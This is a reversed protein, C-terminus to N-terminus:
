MEDLAKDLKKDYLYSRIMLIIIVILIIGGVIISPIIFKNKEKVVKTVLKKVNITYLRVDGNPAVVEIQIKNRNNKINNAGKIKYEANDDELLVDIDLSNVDDSIEIDYNEKEKDFNLMYDKIYLSKIYNNDSKEEEEVLIEGLEPKFDKYEMTVEKIAINTKKITITKALDNTSKIINLDEELYKDKKVSTDILGITIDKIKIDINKEDNTKVFFTIEELYNNCYLMNNFCLNKNEKKIISQIYYKNNEKYLVSDWSQSKIDQIIIDKEDFELEYNIVWIGLTNEEDDFGKFDIHFNMNVNTGATVISSGILRSEKISLADVKFPLILMLFLLIWKKM